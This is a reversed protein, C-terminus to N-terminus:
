LRSKKAKGKPKGDPEGDVPKGDPEGDVPEGADDVLECAGLDFLAEVIWDDTPFGPQPYLEGERYTVTTHGAPAVREDRLMRIRTM